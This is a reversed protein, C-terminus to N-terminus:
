AATVETTLETRTAGCSEGYAERLRRVHTATPDEVKRYGLEEYFPAAPDSDTRLRLEEYLRFGRMELADMLARGLGRRRHAPDIYLHRIRGVSELPQYPDPTVGGIGVVVDDEEAVLFFCREGDPEVAGGALEAMLRSVFRFGERDASRALAAVAADDAPRLSRIAVARVYWDPGTRAFM